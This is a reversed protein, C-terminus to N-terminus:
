EIPTSSSNGWDSWSGPYGKVKTYGLATLAVFSLASRHHTQCYVIVEQSPDIQLAQLMSKLEDNNKLRLNKTQDMMSMWDMHKAGPIHGAREAFKKHGVYEAESRADLCVVSADELHEIIYAQDAIVSSQFEFLYIETSAQAVVPKSDAPFGEARWAHFGGKLLSFRSHGIAALHWLL